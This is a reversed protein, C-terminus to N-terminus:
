ASFDKNEYTLQGEAAEAGKAIVTSDKQATLTGVFGLSLRTFEMDISFFLKILVRFVVLFALTALAGNLSETFASRTTLLLSTFVFTTCWFAM